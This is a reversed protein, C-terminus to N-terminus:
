IRKDTDKYIKGTTDTIGTTLEESQVLEDRIDLLVELMLKQMTLSSKDSVDWLNPINIEIEKRDRM